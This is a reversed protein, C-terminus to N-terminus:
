PKTELQKPPNLHAYFGLDTGTLLKTAYMIQAAHQGFHEVVHYVAELLTLNNKQIQVVTMLQEPTLAQIVTVAESVREKLLKRLQERDTGGTANFEDDRKRTDPAGGAGSLIWQGLNGRLHLVLNGVANSESAGRWWIQEDSLKSLCTDIRDALQKLTDASMRIFIEHM